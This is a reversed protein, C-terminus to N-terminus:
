PLEFSYEDKLLLLGKHYVLELNAGDFVLHGYKEDGLLKGDHNRYDICCMSDGNGITIYIEEGDIEDSFVAAKSVVYDVVNDIHKKRLMRFLPISIRSDPFTHRISEVNKFNEETEILRIRYPVGIVQVKLGSISLSNLHECLWDACQKEFHIIDLSKPDTLMKFGHMDETFFVSYDDKIEFPYITMYNSM